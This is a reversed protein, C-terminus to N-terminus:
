LFQSPEAAAMSDSMMFVLSAPNCTSSPIRDLHVTACFVNVLQLMINEIAGIMHKAEMCVAVWLEAIYCFLSLM